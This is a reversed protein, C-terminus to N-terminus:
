TVPWDQQQDLKATVCGVPAAHGLDVDILEKAQKINHHAGYSMPSAPPFLTM